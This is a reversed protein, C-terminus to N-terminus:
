KDASRGKHLLFMITLLLISGISLWMGKKFSKADYIFEITHDGAPVKVARFALDAPFISVASGDLKANWEPFWGDRLVLYGEQPAHVSIVVREPQDVDFSISSGPMDLAGDSNTGPLASSGNEKTSDELVVTGAGQSELNVAVAQKSELQNSSFSVDRTVFARPEPDRIEWLQLFDDPDSLGRGNGDLRDDWKLDLGDRSEAPLEGQSIIWNVGMKRFGPNRMTSGSRFALLARYEIFSDEFLSCYDIFRRPVMSDYGGVGMIEFNLNVNPTFPRKLRKGPSFSQDADSLLALRGGGSTRNQESANEIMAILLTRPMFDPPSYVPQLYWFTIVNCILILAVLTLNFFRIKSEKLVLFFAIIALVTFSLQFLTNFSAGQINNLGNSMMESLAKPLSSYNLMVIGAFIMIVTLILFGIRASMSIRNQRDAITEIGFAACLCAIFNLVEIPQLITVSWGPLLDMLKVYIEPFFVLAGFVFGLWGLIRTQQRGTLVGLLALLYIFMGGYRWARQTGRGNTPFFIDAKQNIRAKIPNSGPKNLSALLASKEAEHGGDSIGSIQRSTQKSYEWTPVNAIASIGFGIIYTAALVIFPLAWNYKRVVTRRMSFWRAIFYVATFYSLHVVIAPYGVMMIIGAIFASIAVPRIGPKEIFGELAWLLWPFGITGLIWLPFPLFHLGTTLYLCSSAVGTAPSLKWKRLLFYMGWGSLILNFLQFWGIFRQPSALIEALMFPPFFYPVLRNAYLPAGCFQWRNWLPIRSEKLCTQSYQFWPQYELVTDYINTQDAKIDIGNAWPYISKWTDPMLAQGGLIFPWMQVVVFLSIVLLAPWEHRFRVRSSITSETTGMKAELM